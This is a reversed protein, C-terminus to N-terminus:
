HLISELRAEILRTTRTRQAGAMLSSVVIVGLAAAALAFTGAIKAEMESNTIISKTKM